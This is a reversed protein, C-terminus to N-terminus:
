RIPYRIGRPKVILGASRIRRSSGGLREAYRSRKGEAGGRNLHKSDHPTRTPLGFFLGTLSAKPKTQRM